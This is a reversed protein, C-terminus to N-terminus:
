KGRPVHKGTFKEASKNWADILKSRRDYTQENMENYENTAENISKVGNNYADVDEQTRNKPKKADFAEKITGWNESVELYTFLANIENEAEDQYFALLQRTATIMLPDGEYKKIGKLKELGEEVTELLANRNQEIASVDKREMADLLYMEQKYSKFFVLYVENYHDYVLNAIDMKVDLKTDESEIITVDNREAFAKHEKSLMDSAEGLKDSAMDRATMYAEMADYSQEAIAEMDVIEAYDERLVKGILDFYLIISDRYQTDEKFAKARKAKGLASSVSQILEGRRKDVKRASRGHSVSKTYDWMDKQIQLYETSFYDMYEGPNTSSQAYTISGSFLLAILLLKKM